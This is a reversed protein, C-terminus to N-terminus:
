LAGWTLTVDDEKWFDKNISLFQFFSSLFYRNTLRIPKPHATSGSSSFYFLLISLCIYLYEAIVLLLISYFKIPIYNKLVILM